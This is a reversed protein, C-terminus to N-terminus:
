RGRGGPPRHPRIHSRVLTTLRVARQQLAGALARAGMLLAGPSKGPVPPTGTRAAEELSAAFQEFLRRSVDSALTRRFQAIRGSLFLDADASLRM